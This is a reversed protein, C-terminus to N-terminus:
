KPKSVQGLQPGLPPAAVAQGARINTKLFPPHKVKEVVKKMGKAVRAAMKGAHQRKKAQVYKM